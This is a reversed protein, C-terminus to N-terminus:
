VAVGALIVPKNSFQDAFTKLIQRLQSAGSLGLAVPDFGFDEVIERLEDRLTQPFAAWTSDLTLGHRALRRRIGVGQSGM